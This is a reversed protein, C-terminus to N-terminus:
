IGRQAVHPQGDIEFEMSFAWGELHQELQKNPKAGLCFDILYAMLSKGVGNYTSTVTKAQKATHRGVILSLGARNFRVPKFSPRSSSLEILRM